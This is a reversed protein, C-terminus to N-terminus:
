GICALRYGSWRCDSFFGVRCRRGHIAHQRFSSKSYVVPRGGNYVLEADIGNQQFLGADKAIWLPCSEGTLGPYSMHVTQAAVTSWSLLSLIVAFAFDASHKM